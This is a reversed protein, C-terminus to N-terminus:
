VLNNIKSILESTSHSPVYEVIKVEGGNARVADAGVINDANYDGGKVLIDPLVSEILEAPTDQEFVTLWDVSQLGALVVLRDELTNIPRNDGKIRAISADSNVAVILVDGFERAKALYEVHGPHLIDFCGNTMVIKKEKARLDSIKELLAQKDLAKNTSQGFGNLENIIETRSVTAAGLKGVVVGAAANAINVAEVFSAGAAYSAAVVSIFTDGAGTVDFVEKARAPINTTKGDKNILTVGKESRTIILSELGLENVLQFGKNVFEDETKCRGVVAIFESQNPTISTAGKYKVFNDGKPDIFVPINNSTANNILQTINTLTGKEYDSLVLADYSNMISGVNNTLQTVCADSFKNEFDLRILQQNRSIVRLKTITECSNDKICKNSVNERLLLEELHQAFTDNGLLGVLTCKSGLATINRSVNGAGGPREELEDVRVIPVPAEPSIRQAYGSWYRDLMVDGVVLINVKSLDPLQSFM